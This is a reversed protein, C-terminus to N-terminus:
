KPQNKNVANLAANLQSMRKHDGLFGDPHYIMALMRFKAKLIKDDVAQSPPIGLVYLAEERSRPGEPLPEFSLASILTKLRENEEMVAKLQQEAPSLKAAAKQANEAVEAAAEMSEQKAKAVKIDVEEQDLALALSLARRITSDDIGDILRVQLRPKRRLRRGAAPGSKLIVEERDHSGPEGPDPFAALQKAPVLTIIARAIDGSSVNRRAVMALVDDRFKSSCAITYSKKAIQQTSDDIEAVSLSSM